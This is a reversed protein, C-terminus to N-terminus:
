ITKSDRQTEYIGTQLNKMLRYVPLSVYKTKNDKKVLWWVTGRIFTRYGKKHLQLAEQLPNM